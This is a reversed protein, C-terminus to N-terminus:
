YFLELKRWSEKFVQVLQFATHLPKRSLLYNIQRGVRDLPTMGKEVPWLHGVLVILVYQMNLFPFTKLLTQDVRSGLKSLNHNWTELEPVNLM